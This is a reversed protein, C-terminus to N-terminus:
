ATVTTTVTYEVPYTMQPFKNVIVFDVTTGTLVTIPNTLETAIIGVGTPVWPSVATNLEIWNAALHFNAFGQWMFTDDLETKKIRVTMSNTDVSTEVFDYGSIKNGGNYDSIRVVGSTDYYYWGDHSGDDFTTVGFGTPNDIEVTMKLTGATPTDIATYTWKLWGDDTDEVTVNVDGNATWVRSYSYEVEGLYSTDIEDCSGAGLTADFMCASILHVEADVSATNDLYHADTFTKAELSTFPAWVDVIDGSKPMEEGDVLLGQSVVANGTIVGFYPLLAASVLAIGLLAIVFVPISKGFVNVKKKLLKKM